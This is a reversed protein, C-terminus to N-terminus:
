TIWYMVTEVVLGDNERTVLLGEGGLTANPRGDWTYSTLFEVHVKYGERGEVPEVRFRDYPWDLRCLLLM